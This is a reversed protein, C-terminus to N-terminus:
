RISLRSSDCEAIPQKIALSGLMDIGHSTAAVGGGAGLGTGTAGGGCDVGGGASGASAMCGSM